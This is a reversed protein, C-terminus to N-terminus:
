SYGRMKRKQKIDAERACTRCVRFTRESNCRKYIRLNEGSLAHGKPCAVKRMNQAAPSEGRLTNERATVLELHSPNACLRNRCLHDFHILHNSTGLPVNRFLHMAVAHSTEMKGSVWLCGYGGSKQAGTWWWCSNDSQKAIMRMFRAELDVRPYIGKPM